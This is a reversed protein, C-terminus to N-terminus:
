STAVAQMMLRCSTCVEKKSASGKSPKAPWERRKAKRVLGGLGRSNRPAINALVFIKQEGRVKRALGHPNTM